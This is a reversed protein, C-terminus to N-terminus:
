GAAPEVRLTTGAAPPDVMAQAYPSSRYKTLFQQDIEADLSPGGDPVFRVPHERGGCVISGEGYRRARRYWRGADGKWSRVYLRGDVAVIWIPAGVPPRDPAPMVVRIEWAGALERFTSADWSM